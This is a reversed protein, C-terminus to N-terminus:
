GIKHSFSFSIIRKSMFCTHFLVGNGLFTFASPIQLKFYSQSYSIYNYNLYIKFM